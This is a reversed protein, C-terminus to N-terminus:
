PCRCRRRMDARWVLFSRRIRAFRADLEDLFEGGGEVAVVPRGQHVLDHVFCLQGQVFDVVEEEGLEVQAGDFQDHLVQALRHALGVPDAVFPAIQARGADRSGQIISQLLANAGLGAVVHDEAGGAAAHGHGRTHPLPSRSATILLCYDTSCYETLLLRSM